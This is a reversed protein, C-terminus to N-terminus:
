KLSVTKNSIYYILNYKWVDSFCFNFHLSCLIVDMLTQVIYVPINRSELTKQMDIISLYEGIDTHLKKKYAVYM